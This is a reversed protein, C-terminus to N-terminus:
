ARGCNAVIARPRNLMQTDSFCNIRELFAGGLPRDLIEFEPVKSSIRHNPPASAPVCFYTPPLLDRKQRGAVRCTKGCSSQKCATSGLVNFLM